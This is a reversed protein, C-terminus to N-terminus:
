SSWGGDECGIGSRDMKIDDQLFDMNTEMWAVHGAWRLM